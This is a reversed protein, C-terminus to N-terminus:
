AEVKKYQKVVGKDVANWFMKVYNPDYLSVVKDYNEWAYERFWGSTISTCVKELAILFSTKPAMNKFPIQSRELALVEFNDIVYVKNTEPYYVLFYEVLESQTEYTGKTNIRTSYDNYNFTHSAVGKTRRATRCQCKYFLNKEKNYVVLDFPLNDGFPRLVHLGRKLLEAIIIAETAEGKQKPHKLNQFSMTKFSTPRSPNSGM